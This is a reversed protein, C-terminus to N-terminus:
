MVFINWSPLILHFQSLMIKAEIAHNDLAFASAYKLEWGKLVFAREGYFDCAYSHTFRPSVIAEGGRRMMKFKEFSGNM